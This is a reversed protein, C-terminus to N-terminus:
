RWKTHRCQFAALHLYQRARVKVPSCSLWARRASTKSRRKTVGLEASATSSGLLRRFYFQAGFRASLRSCALARTAKRQTLLALARCTLRLNALTSVATLTEALKPVSSKKPAQRAGKPRSSFCQINYRSPAECPAARTTWGSVPQKGRRECRLAKVSCRLVSAGFCRLVSAGVITSKKFEAIAGQM